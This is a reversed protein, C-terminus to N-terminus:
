PLFFAQEVLIGVLGQLEIAILDALNLAIRAVQYGYCDM